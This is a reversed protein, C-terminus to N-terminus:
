APVSARVRKTSRLILGFILVVGGIVALGTGITTPATTIRFTINPGPLGVIQPMPGVNGMIISGGDPQSLTFSGSTGNQHVAGTNRYDSLTCTAACAAAGIQVPEPSTWTVSVPIKGTLSFGSVSGVYQSRVTESAQPTLPVLLLAVGLVSIAAGVVVWKPRVAVRVSSESM